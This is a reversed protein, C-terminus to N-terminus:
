TNRLLPGAAPGRGPKVSLEFFRCPLNKKKQDAAARRVSRFINATVKSASSPKGAPVKLPVREWTRFTRSENYVVMRCTRSFSVFSGPVLCLLLRLLRRLLMVEMQLDQSLCCCSLMEDIQWIVDKLFMQHKKEKVSVKGQKSHDFFHKKRNFFSFSGPCEWLRQKRQAETGVGPRVQVMGVIGDGWYGQGM